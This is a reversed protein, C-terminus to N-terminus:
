SSQALLPGLEKPWQAGTEAMALELNKKQFSAEYTITLVGLRTHAGLALSGMGKYSKADTDRHFHVALGDFFFRFIRIPV